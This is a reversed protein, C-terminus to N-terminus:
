VNNIKRILRVKRDLIKFEFRNLYEEMRNWNIDKELAVENFRIENIDEETKYFDFIYLLDLIAKERSAIMFSRKFGNVSMDKLEYGFFLRPHISYYKFSKGLVTFAKTKKTTISTSDVIHEPILGYFLLAEQHSVYSPSYINNAVLFSFEPVKLFENFCYWERRIRTIYGKKQWNVLNDTNFEPYFLHIQGLSFLGQPYLSKRFDLYSLPM